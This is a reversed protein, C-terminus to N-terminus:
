ALGFAGKRSARRHLSNRISSAVHPKQPRLFPRRNHGMLFNNRYRTTSATLFRSRWLINFGPRRPPPAPHTCLPPPWVHTPSVLADLAKLFEPLIAKRGALDRFLQAPHGAVGDDALDAAPAQRAPGPPRLRGARDARSRAGRAGGRRSRGRRAADGFRRDGGGARRPRRRYTIDIFSRARGGHQGEASVHALPRDAI